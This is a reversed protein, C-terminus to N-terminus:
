LLPLVFFGPAFQGPKKSEVTKRPDVPLLSM